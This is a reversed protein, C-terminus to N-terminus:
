KDKSDFMSILWTTLNDKGEKVDAHDAVICMVYRKVVFFIVIKYFMFIHHQIRNKEKQEEM